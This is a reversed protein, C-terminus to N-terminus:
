NPQQLFTKEDETSDRNLANNRYPYRGFRDIIEKHRQEFDLTTADDLQEFLPLYREHIVASESHMFPIIIFRRWQMPLTDFYPKQIAEQALALAMGDQAFASSQGRCLNRSFQDLVIIEALRGALATISSNGDLSSEAIRWTVCEGQKAAQWIRGFNEQIQKDFRDNQAFWYTENKKDFWFDLVARADPNLYTLDVSKPNLQVSHSRSASTSYDTSLAM